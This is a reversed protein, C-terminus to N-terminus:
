ARQRVRVTSGRRVLSGFPLRHFGTAVTRALDLRKPAKSPGFTQWWNRGRQEMVQEMGIPQFRATQLQVSRSSGKQTSLPDVSLRREEHRTLFRTPGVSLRLSGTGM